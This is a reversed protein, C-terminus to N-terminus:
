HHQSELDHKFIGNNIYSYLLTWCYSSSLVNAPKVPFKDAFRVCAVAPQLWRWFVLFMNVKSSAGQVLM